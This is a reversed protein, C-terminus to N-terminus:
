LKVFRFEVGAFRACRLSPPRPPPRPLLHSCSTVPFEPLMGTVELAVVVLPPLCYHDLWQEDAVRRRRAPIPGLVGRQNPDM